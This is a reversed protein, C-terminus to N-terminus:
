GAVTALRVPVILVAPRIVRSTATSRVHASTNFVDSARGFSDHAKKILPTVDSDIHGIFAKAAEGQWYGCDIRDLENVTTTLETHLDGIQRALSRTLDVDGPTPDFGLHPFSRTM